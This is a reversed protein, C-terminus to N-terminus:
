KRHWITFGPEEVITEFKHYDLDASNSLAIDSTKSIYIDFFSKNKELYDPDDLFLDIPYDKKLIVWDIQDDDVHTLVGYKEQNPYQGFYDSWPKLRTSLNNVVKLNTYFVIPEYEMGIVLVTDTPKADVNICDCIEQIPSYYGNRIENIYDLLYCKAKINSKYLALSTIRFDADTDPSAFVGINTTWGYQEALLNNVENNEIPVSDLLMYPLINLINTFLIVIAFAGSMFKSNKFILRFIPLVIFPAAVLVTVFYHNVIGWKPIATFIVNCFILMFFYLSKKGYIRTEKKRGAVSCIQFIVAAALLTIIPVFYVQLKWMILLLKTFFHKEFGNSGFNPAQFIINNIIYWIGWPLAGAIVLIIIKFLRKDCTSLLYFTTAGVFVAGGLRNSFFLLTIALFLMTYLLVKHKASCVKKLKIIDCIKLVLFISLATYFLVLSYYRAQRAYLLFQVNLAYIMCAGIALFNSKYVNKGLLWIIYISAIAFLSFPFRAAFTSKGLIWFSAACIYYQLWEHNSVLLKENFNNGDSTSLLNKGDYVKPFGYTLVNWSVNATGAEDKWLYTEDINYLIIVSMPMMLILIPLERKIYMFFSHMREKILM